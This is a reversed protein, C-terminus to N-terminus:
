SENSPKPDLSTLSPIVLVHGRNIILKCKLIYLDWLMGSGSVYWMLCKSVTISRLSNINSVEVAKQGSQSIQGTM